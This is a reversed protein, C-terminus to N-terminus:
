PLPFLGFVPSASFLGKGYRLSSIILHLFFISSKMIGEHNRLIHVPQM